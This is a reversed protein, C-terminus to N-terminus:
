YEWPTDTKNECIYFDFECNVDDPPVVKYGPECMSFDKRCPVLDSIECACEDDYFLGDFGNSNLYEEIIELCNM